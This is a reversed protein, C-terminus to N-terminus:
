DCTLEKECALFSRMTTEDVPGPNFAFTRANCGEICEAKDASPNPCSVLKTCAEECLSSLPITSISGEGTDGKGEDGGKTKNKSSGGGGCAALTGALFLVMFFTYFRNDFRIM